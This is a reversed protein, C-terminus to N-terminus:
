HAEEAHAESGNNPALTYRKNTAFRYGVRVRANNMFPLPITWPSSQLRYEASLSAPDIPNVSNVRELWPMSQTVRMLTDLRYGETMYENLEKVNRFVRGLMTELVADSMIWRGVIFLNNVSPVVLHDPHEVRYRKLGEKEQRERAQLVRLEVLAAEFEPQLGSQDVVEEIKRVARAVRENDSRGSSCSGDPHNPRFDPGRLSRRFLAERYFRLYSEDPPQELELVGDLAPQTPRPEPNKKEASLSRLYSCLRNLIRYHQIRWDLNDNLDQPTVSDDINRNNAEDEQDQDQMRSLTFDDMTLVREVPHIVSDISLCLTNLNPTGQLMRFQFHFAFEVTLYLASLMPLHWDWTWKPRHMPTTQTSSDETNNRDIDQISPIITIRTNEQSGLCLKKLGSTSHLTDPHFALASAGRLVLNTLEPLHAPRCVKIESLDYIEQLDSVDISKLLPCYCFFDPDLVLKENRTLQVLLTSLVPMRWGIRILQPEAPETQRFQSQITFTKLTAGFGLGIDDLESGFPEKYARISVDEMPPVNAAPRARDVREQDHDKSPNRQVAWKFSGPGLSIMDYKQLSPCRHLFPKSKLQDYSETSFDEWVDIVKVHELNTHEVKAVFQKWNRNVLMEPEILTPLLELIQDLVDAPCTQANELVSSSPCRVQKLTGRFMATHARVFEIASELDQKRKEQLLGAKKVKEVDMQELTYDTIDALEDLRFTVTALSSLRHMSDVYRGIDSLPIVIGQLQELIPSCLAWTAERHTNLTLHLITMPDEKMFSRHGELDVSSSAYTEAMKYKEVYSKLQPAFELHYPIEALVSKGEQDQTNFHRVYSLYDISWLQTTPSPFDNDAASPDRLNSADAEPPEPADGIGYMAKVLESYSDKPVSALLLRIVPFVSEYSFSHYTYQQGQDCQILWAFPDEYLIPLTALCVYKSVRLLSALTKLDRKIALNAIVLRLVEIPLPFTDAM